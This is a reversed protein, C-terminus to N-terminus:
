NVTGREIPAEEAIRSGDQKNNDGNEGDFHKSVVNYTTAKNDEAKESETMTMERARRTTQAHSTGHKLEYAVAVPVMRKLM